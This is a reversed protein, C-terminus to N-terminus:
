ESVFVKENLRFYTRYKTNLFYIYKKRLYKPLVVNKLNTHLYERYIEVRIIIDSSESAVSILLIQFRKQNEM